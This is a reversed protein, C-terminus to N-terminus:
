MEQIGNEPEQALITGGVNGEVTDVKISFKHLPPTYNLHIFIFYRQFNIILFFCFITSCSFQEAFNSIHGLKTASNQLLSTKAENLEKENRYFFNIHLVYFEHFTVTKQCINHRCCRM